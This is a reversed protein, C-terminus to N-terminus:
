TRWRRPETTLSPEPPRGGTSCIEVSQFGKEEEGHPHSVLRRERMISACLAFLFVVIPYLIKLGVSVLIALLFIFFVGYVLRKGYNQTVRLYSILCLLYLFLFVSSAITLVSVLLNPFVATMGTMIVFAVGLLLIACRPLGRHDLHAFRHPLRKTRASTYILRSMGWLWSAANLQMITLAFAVIIGTALWAPSIREDRDQEKRTECPHTKNYLLLPSWIPPGACPM